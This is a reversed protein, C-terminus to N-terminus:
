TLNTVFQFCGSQGEGKGPELREELKPERAEPSDPKPSQLEFNAASKLGPM